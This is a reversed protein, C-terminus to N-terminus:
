KYLSVEIECARLCTVSSFASIAQFLAATLEINVEYTRTGHLTSSRKVVVFTLILKKPPSPAQM